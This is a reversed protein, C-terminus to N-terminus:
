GAPNPNPSSEYAFEPPAIAPEAPPPLPLVIRIRAGKENKTEVTLSGGLENARESMGILGLGGTPSTFEFGQGNDEVLLTIEEGAQRLAVWVETAASHRITNTLAEQVSRYICTEWAEPLRGLDPDCDLNVPISFRRSFERVYWELAPLLGLDDLMAPRLLRSLQRVEQVTQAALLKSERLWPVLEPSATEAKQEMRGLNMRIATL